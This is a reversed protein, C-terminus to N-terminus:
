HLRVKGSRHRPWRPSLGTSLFDSAVAESGQETLVRLMQFPGRGREGPGGLAGVWWGM